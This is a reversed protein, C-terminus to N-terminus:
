FLWYLHVVAKLVVGDFNWQRAVIQKCVARL